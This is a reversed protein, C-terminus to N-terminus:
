RSRSFKYRLHRVFAALTLRETELRSAREFRGDQHAFWWAGGDKFPEPRGSLYAGSGAVDRLSFLWDAPIVTEYVRWRPGGDSVEGGVETSLAARVADIGARTPRYMPATPYYYSGERSPWAPTALGLNYLKLCTPDGGMRGPVHWVGVAVMEGLVCWEEDTLDREVMGGKPSPTPLSM